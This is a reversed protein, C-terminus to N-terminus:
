LYTVHVSTAPAPPACLHSASAVAKARVQATWDLSFPVVPAADGMNEGAADAEAEIELWEVANWTQLSQCTPLQAPDQLCQRYTYIVDCGQLATPLEGKGDGDKKILGLADTLTGSLPPAQPMAADAPPSM